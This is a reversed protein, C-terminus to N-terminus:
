PYVAWCRKVDARPITEVVGWGSNVVPRLRTPSNLSSSLRYSYGKLRIKYTTAESNWLSLLVVLGVWFPTFPSNYSFVPWKCYVGTEGSARWSPFKDSVSRTVVTHCWRHPRTMIEAYTHPHEGASLKSPKVIVKHPANYKETPFGDLSGSIYV